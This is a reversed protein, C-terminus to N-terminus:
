AAAYFFVWFFVAIVAIFGWFYVASEMNVRVIKPILVPGVGGEARHASRLRAYRALLTESWYFGGVLLAINMVAWGIFVSTYGSRGPFFSLDTLEWCQLGLAVLTALVSTWGAVEWDLVEGSRLRRLGYYSLAVAAVTCAMIATGPGTPASVGDPRWLRFSDASRLYFYAFALSAFAFGVVGILVRTGTWLSGEAARQEYAIEEPTGIPGTYEVHTDTM